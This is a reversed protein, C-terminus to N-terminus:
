PPQLIGSHITDPKNSLIHHILKTTSQPEEEVELLSKWLLTNLFIKTSINYVRLHLYVVSVGTRQEGFFVSM